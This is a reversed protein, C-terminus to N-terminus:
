SRAIGLQDCIVDLDAWGSPPLRLPIKQRPQLEIFEGTLRHHVIRAIKERPVFISLTGVQGAAAPPAQCLAEADIPDKDSLLFLGAEIAVVRGGAWLAGKKLPLNFRAEQITFPFVVDVKEAVPRAFRTTSVKGIIHRNERTIHCVRCSTEALGYIQGCKSCTWTGEPM